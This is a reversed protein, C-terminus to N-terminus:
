LKQHQSWWQFPVSSCMLALPKLVSLICQPLNAALGDLELPQRAPMAVGGFAFIFAFTDGICMVVANLHIQHTEAFYPPYCSFSSPFLFPSSGLFSLLTTKKKYILHFFFPREVFFFSAASSFSYVWFGFQGLAKWWKVILYWALGERKLLISRSSSLPYSFFLVDHIIWLLCSTAMVM